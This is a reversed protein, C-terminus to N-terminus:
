FHLSPHHPAPSSHSRNPHEPHTGNQSQALNQPTKTPSVARATRRKWLSPTVTASLSSTRLQNNTYPIQSPSRPAPKPTPAFIEHAERFSHDPRTFRLLGPSFGKKRAASKRPVSTGSGRSFCPAGVSTCSANSLDPAGVSTISGTRLNPLM